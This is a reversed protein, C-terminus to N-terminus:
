MLLQRAVIVDDAREIGTLGPEHSQGAAPWLGLAAIGLAPLASLVLLTGMAPPKALVPSVTTRRMMATSTDRNEPRAAWKPWEADPNSRWSNATARSTPGPAPSVRRSSERSPTTACARPSSRACDRSSNPPQLRRTTPQM